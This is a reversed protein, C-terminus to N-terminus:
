AEIVMDDPGAYVFAESSIFMVQGPGDGAIKWHQDGKEGYLVISDAKVKIHQIGGNESRLGVLFDRNAM